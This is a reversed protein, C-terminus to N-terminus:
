PDPPANSETEPKRTFVFEMAKQEKREKTRTDVYLVEIVLRNTDSLDVVHAFEKEYGLSKMYPDDDKGYLKIRKSDGDPKGHSTIFYTGSTDMAILDFREHRRDFGIIFSGKFGGAQGRAGYGIWLFRGDVLMYSNGNGNSVAQRGSRGAKVEVTWKGSFSKLLAHYPGPRMAETM